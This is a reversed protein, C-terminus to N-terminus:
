ADVRVLNTKDPVKEGEEPHNDWPCATFPGVKETLWTCAPCERPQPSPGKNAVTILCSMAMECGQMWLSTDSTVEKDVTLIPASIESSYM